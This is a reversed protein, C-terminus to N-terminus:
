ANRMLKRLMGITEPWLADDTAIQALDRKQAETLPLGQKDDLWAGVVIHVIARLASENNEHDEPRYSVIPPTPNTYM